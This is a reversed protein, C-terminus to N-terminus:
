LIKSTITSRKVSTHRLVIFDYIKTNSCKENLQFKLIIEYIIIKVSDNLYILFSTYISPQMYVAWTM